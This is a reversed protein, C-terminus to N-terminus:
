EEDGEEPERERKKPFELITAEKPEEEEFGPHVYFPAHKRTIRDRLPVKKIVKNRVWDGLIKNAWKAGSTEHTDDRGLHRGIDHGLWDESQSNARKPGAEKLFKQVWFVEQETMGAFASPFDWREIAQLNDGNPLYESVIRWWTAKEAPAMNRKGKDIRIYHSRKDEPVKALAAENSNMRNIVRCSRVANVIASGGRTDDITLDAQSGQMPKRVHHSLEICCALNQSILALRKVIQDIAGNDGEPVAHFSIFPDLAVVDIQKTRIEQEFRDIWGLDFLVSATRPSKGIFLPFSVKDDVYLFQAVRERDVDHHQCHAAIRRDIEVRPDEGSLYWVRLGQLSMTILEYLIM